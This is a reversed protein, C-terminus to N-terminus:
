KKECDVIYFISRRNEQHKAESCKFRNANNCENVLQSEGYGIASEFRSADIGRSIIYDRTSKARRDSLKMNYRDTGRSDTHSEIKIRMEPHQNMVDVINELEAKSDARINWKDFDFFIPNIVIECNNILPILFLDQIIGTEKTVPTKITESGDKYDPKTAVISYNQDCDINEFLYEGINDATTEQVIKGSNDILKVIANPLVENTKLDKVVGKAFQTCSYIEFSYIDDSGKGELRNSSFYGSNNDDNIFFAFDDYGSNYPTGLNESIANEDNLINSKFIDLLGISVRGDSSYYLTNDNSIFPFTDRRESNVNPGLNKPESYNGGELIDVVYIDTSGYGDEKDSAFYLKKNDPSLAPHGTSFDDSNFPLEFVNGWKGNELTARYLKLNTTGENDYARRKRKNLNDRTFYMTQGDDTIVLSSEHFKTNIVGELPEANVFEYSGEVTSQYLDLYPENNWEYIKSRSLDSTDRASAFIAKGDNSIFTGFDSLQSNIDLNKINIDSEKTSILSKIAETGDDKYDSLQTLFADAESYNELSLQTQAYKYIYEAELNSYKDIALKYWQAAKESNSNNYYCDGLRTLVHKSDDGKDYAKEYFEIAKTYAFKEFFKDGVIKQALIISCSFVLIISLITKKM